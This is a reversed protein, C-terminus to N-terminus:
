FNMKKGGDQKKKKM